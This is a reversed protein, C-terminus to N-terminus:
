KDCCEGRKIKIVVDFLHQEFGDKCIRVGSNKKRGIEFILEIVDKGILENTLYVYRGIGQKRKSVSLMRSRKVFERYKMHM